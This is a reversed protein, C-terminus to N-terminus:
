GWFVAYGYHMLMLMVAPGGHEPSFTHIIAQTLSSSVMVAAWLRNRLEKEIEPRDTSVHLKEVLKQVVESKITSVAAGGERKGATLSGTYSIVTSVAQWGIEPGCGLREARLEADEERAASDQISTTLM